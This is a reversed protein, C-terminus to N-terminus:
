ARSRIACTARVLTPIASVIISIASVLMLM